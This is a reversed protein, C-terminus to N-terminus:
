KHKCYSCSMNVPRNTWSPVTKDVEEQQFAMDAETVAVKKVYKLVDHASIDEQFSKYVIILSGGVAEKVEKEVNMLRMSSHPPYENDAIHILIRNAADWSFGAVYKEFIVKIAPGAAGVRTLARVFFSDPGTFSSTFDCPETDYKTSRQDYHRYDRYPAFAVRLTCQPSQKKMETAVNAM